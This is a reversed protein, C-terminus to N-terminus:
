YRSATPSDLWGCKPQLDYMRLLQQTLAGELAQWREHDSLAELM